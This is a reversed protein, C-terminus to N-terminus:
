VMDVQPGNWSYDEARRCSIATYGHQWGEYGGVVLELLVVPVPRRVYIVESREGAALLRVMNRWARAERRRRDVDVLHPM